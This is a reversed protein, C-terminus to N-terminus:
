NRGIENRIFFNFVEQIKEQELRFEEQEKERQQKELDLLEREHARSETNLLINKPSTLEKESREPIFPEQNPLPRAHFEKQKKNM